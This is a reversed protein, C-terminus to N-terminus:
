MDHDRLSIFFVHKVFSIHYFFYLFEYMKLLNERSM